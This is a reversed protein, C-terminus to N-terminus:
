TGGAIRVDSMVRSSRKMRKAAVAKQMVATLQAYVITWAAEVRPTFEVGLRGALARLLAVGILDYHDEIAPCATNRSGIRRVLETSRDSRTLGTVVVDIMQVLNASWTAPDFQFLGDLRTDAQLLSEFLLRAEGNGAPLVKNWSSQVTDIHQPTVAGSRTHDRERPNMWVTNLLRMLLIERLGKNQKRQKL